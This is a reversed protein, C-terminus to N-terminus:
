LRSTGGGGGIGGQPDTRASNDSDRTERDVALTPELDLSVCREVTGAMRAANRERGGFPSAGIQSARNQELGITGEADVKGASREVRTFQHAASRSLVMDLFSHGQRGAGFEAADPEALSSRDAVDGGHQRAPPPVPTEDAGVRRDTAGALFRSRQMDVDPRGVVIM